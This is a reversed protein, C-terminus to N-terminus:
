VHLESLLNVQLPFLRSTKNLLFFYFAFWFGVVVVFFLGLLLFGCPSEFFGDGEFYMRVVLSIFYLFLSLLFSEPSLFLLFFSCSCIITIQCTGM